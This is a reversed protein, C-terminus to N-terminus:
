IGYIGRLDQEGTSHFEGARRHRRYRRLAGAALITINSAPLVWFPYFYHYVGIRFHHRISKNIYIYLSTKPEPYTYVYTYIYISLYHLLFQPQIITDDYLSASADVCWSSTATEYPCWRHKTLRNWLEEWVLHYLRNSKGNWFRWCPYTKITQRPRM